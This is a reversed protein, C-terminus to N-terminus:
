KVTTKQWNEKKTARSCTRQYWERLKFITVVHVKLGDHVDKPIKAERAWGDLMRHESELSSNGHRVSIAPTHDCFTMMLWANFERDESTRMAMQLAM